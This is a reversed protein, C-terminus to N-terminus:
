PFHNPLGIFGTSTFGLCNRSKLLRIEVNEPALDRVELVFRGLGEDVATAYIGDGSDERRYGGFRRTRDKQNRSSHKGSPVLDSQHLTRKKM